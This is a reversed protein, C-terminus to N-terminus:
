NWFGQAKIQSGEYGQRKLFKRMRTVAPTYGALYFILESPDTVSLGSVWEELAAYDGSSGKHLPQFGLRSFYRAFEERHPPQAMAVAGCIVTEIDALQQLAFFHGIATEDGLFVLRKRSVPQQHSSGIGLYTLTDGTRLGKAWRSGPGDHATDIFLTCTQTEADWGSPTYDRYTLADVRCKMHQTRSWKHMDCGPMYLDIERFTAPEWVRVALVTATKALRSELLAIAKQTIANM